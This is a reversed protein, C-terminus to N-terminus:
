EENAMGLEGAPIIRDTAPPVFGLPFLIALENGSYAIIIRGEPDLWMRTPPRNPINRSFTAELEFPQPGGPTPRIRLLRGPQNFLFLLGENTRVLWPEAEGAAAAAGPLPWTTLKGTKSIVKLSTKGDFYWNGDADRLLSKEGPSVM